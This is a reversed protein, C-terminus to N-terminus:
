GHREGEMGNSAFMGDRDVMRGPHLAIAKCHDTGSIGGYRHGCVIVSVESAGDELALRELEKLHWLAREHVTMRPAAAEAAGPAAVTVVGAAATNSLFLRRTIKSLDTM